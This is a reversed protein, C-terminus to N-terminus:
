IKVGKTRQLHPPGKTRQRRSAKLTRCHITRAEFHAQVVIIVLCVHIYVHEHLVHACAFLMSDVALVSGLAAGSTARPFRVIHRFVAGKRMAKMRACGVQNCFDLGFDFDIKGDGKWNWGRSGDQKAAGKRVTSAGKDQKQLWSSAPKDGFV